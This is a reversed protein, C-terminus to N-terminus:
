PEEHRFLRVWFLLECVLGAGFLAGAFWTAGPLALGFGAFYAGLAALFFALTILHRM